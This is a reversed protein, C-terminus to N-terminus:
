ARDAQGEHWDSRGAHHGDAGILHGPLVQPLEEAGHLSGPCQGGSDHRRVPLPHLAGRLEHMPHIEGEGSVVAIDRARQPLRLLAQARLDAAPAMGVRMGVVPGAEHDRAALQRWILPQNDTSRDDMGLSPHRLRSETGPIGAWDCHRGPAESVADTAHDFGGQGIPDDDDPKPAPPARVAADPSVAAPAAGPAALAPGSSSAGPSSFQGLERLLGALDEIAVVRWYGGAKQMKVKLVMPQSSLPTAVRVALTATGNSILESEVGQYSLASAAVKRLVASVYSAILATAPDSSSSQPDQPLVGSIIFQDIARSASPLYIGKLAPVAAAIAVRALGGTNNQQMIVGAIQDVGDSLVSSVDVDRDFNAQNRQLYAVRAHDLSDEPKPGSLLAALAVLAVVVVLASAGWGWARRARPTRRPAVAEVRPGAASPPGGGLSTGVFLQAATIWTAYGDTWVHDTGLIHGQEYYRQLVDLTYPGYQQGGRRVLYKSVTTM